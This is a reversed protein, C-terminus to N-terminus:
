FAQRKAMDFGLNAQRHPPADTQAHLPAIGKHNPPMFMIVIVAMRMIVTMAMSAAVAAGM